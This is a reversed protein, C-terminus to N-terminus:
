TGYLFLFFVATVWNWIIWKREGKLKKLKFGFENCKIGCKKKEILIVAIFFFFFLLEHCDNTKAHKFTSSSSLLPRFEFRFFIGGAGGVLCIDNWLLTETVSKLEEVVSDNDSSIEFENAPDFRWMNVRWSSLTIVWFKEVLLKRPSPPNPGTWLPKISSLSRGPKFAWGTATLSRSRSPEWPWM